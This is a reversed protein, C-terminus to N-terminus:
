TTLRRGIRARTSPAPAGRRRCSSACRRGRARAPEVVAITGGLGEVINRAIALGLGTGTRAHDHLYPDFVRPLDSPRSAARRPRAVTSRAGPARGRRRAHARGRSARGAAGGGRGRAARQDLLNVLALRSGSPTPSSRAPTAPDLDCRSRRPARPPRAAARRTAPLAREPRGAGLEFRIPRAFDLVETVIRNSGRSRKTSTPSRRPRGAGPGGRERRLARLAAKIIMLPNRIEHAIVTSLRGLSSLRERQAAERQFRAISDTLTNFTTALLRADEDDWRAGPAARDQPTLDGTAAMERM